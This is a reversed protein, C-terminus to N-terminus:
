TEFGAPIVMPFCSPLRAAMETATLSSSFSMPVRSETRASPAGGRVTRSVRASAVIIISLYDPSHLDRGLRFRDLEVPRIALNDLLQVVTTATPHVRHLTGGRRSIHVLGERTVGKLLDEGIGGARFDGCRPDGTLAHTVLGFRTGTRDSSRILQGRADASLLGSDDHGVDLCRLGFFLACGRCRIGHSAESGTSAGADSGTSSLATRKAFNSIAFCSTGPNSQSKLTWYARRALIATSFYPDSRRIILTIRDM